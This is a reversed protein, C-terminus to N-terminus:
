IRWYEGGGGERAMFKYEVLSRRLLATDKHYRSLIQNVQKESYRVGSEFSKLVYRLLVLFKKEQAPFATICGEEDTFAKLVKRDFADMDVTGSLRPLNDPALLRQAMATLTDTQLSYEFYHGKARASVLGAKTLRSLHHSTTSVGLGLMEAIQEVTCPQRALLGVIKLRNGDALAKFFNLLEESIAQNQSESEHNPHGRDENTKNLDDLDNLENMDFMAIETM